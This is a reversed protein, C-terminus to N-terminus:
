DRFYMDDIISFSIVPTPKKKKLPIEKIYGYKELLEFYVSDKRSFGTKPGWEHKRENFNFTKLVEYLREKDPSVFLLTKGKEYIPPFLM